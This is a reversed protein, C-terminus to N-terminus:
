DYCDTNARNVQKGVLRSSAEVVGSGLQTAREAGLGIANRCLTASKGAYSGVCANEPSDLANKLVTNRHMHKYELTFGKFYRFVRTLSARTAIKGTLSARVRLSLALGLYCCM